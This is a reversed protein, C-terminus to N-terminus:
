RRNGYGAAESFVSQRDAQLHNTLGEALGIHKRYRIGELLTMIVVLRHGGQLNRLKRNETEAEYM